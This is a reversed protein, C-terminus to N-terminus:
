CAMTTGACASSSMKWGRRVSTWRGSRWRTAQSPTGAARPSASVVALGGDPLETVETRDHSAANFAVLGSGDGALVAQAEAVLRGASMWSMPTTRRTDEYVWHISSGPIIDHFQQLLLQKWAQDLVPRRDVDAAVSWMEAARLAEEGRRNAWKVDAHTTLTGRHTELYLEGVWTALDAQRKASVRTLFEGVTGIEMRRYGTSTLPPPAAWELMQATPGGGGDGYGFPYLSFDSRQHDKYNRQSSMIEGVSFDGNYTNAPPFHALGRSGDHGEWWFTSHPFVNTDNWRMKQAVLATVGVQNPSRRCPLRIALSTPSGCSEPRSASGNAFFRKGHVLQRVLSEGSPVNTDSEVWM